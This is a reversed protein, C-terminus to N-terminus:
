AVCQFGEGIEFGVVFVGQLDGGGDGATGFIEVTESRFVFLNRSFHTNAIGGLATRTASVFRFSEVSVMERRM